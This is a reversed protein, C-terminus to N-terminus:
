NPLAIEFAYAAMNGILENDFVTAKTPFTAVAVIITFLETDGEDLLELHFVTGAELSLPADFAFPAPDGNGLLEDVRDGGLLVTNDEASHNNIVSRATGALKKVLEEDFLTVCKFNFDALSGGAAFIEIRLFSLQEAAPIIFIPDPNSQQGTIEVMLGKPGDVPSDSVLTVTIAEGDVEPSTISDSHYVFAQIIAEQDQVSDDIIRYGVDSPLKQAQLTIFTSARLLWLQDDLDIDKPFDLWTALIPHLNSTM